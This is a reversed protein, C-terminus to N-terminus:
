GGFPYFSPAPYATNGGNYFTADGPFPSRSAIYTTFRVDTIRGALFPTRLILRPRAILRAQVCENTPPKKHLLFRGGGLVQFDGASTMAEIVPNSARMDRYEMYITPEGGVNGFPVFYLDSEYLGASVSTLETADDIVFPVRVGNILLYENNWMDDRMRTADMVDINGQFNGSVNCRDTPYACPWIRTLAYFLGYPGVLKWQVDINLQQARYSLANYMETIRLVTNSPDDSVNADAFSEVLSDAAPCAIGTVADQYGTNILKDLGNYEIYGASGATSAPNGTYILRAYDRWLAFALGALKNAAENRLFDRANFPLMADNGAFPNNAVTHDLFEGRNVLDGARDVQVIQTERGIRGFPMVQQCLKFSGAQPFDACAASPESGSSATMGTLIGVIRDTEVSLRVPLMSQLGRPVPMASVINASLGPTSLLGTSGHLYTANPPTGVAKTTAQYAQYLALAERFQAENM